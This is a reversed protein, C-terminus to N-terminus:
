EEILPKLRALRAPRRLKALAKAEIQRIRERTLRFVQGVEELTRGENEGVGFRMRLIKEERPTLQTLIRRTHEAVSASVAVDLASVHHADEVFDALTADGDDGVPAELSVPEHVLRWLIRVKDETIGLREAVEASTPERRLSQRLARMTRALNALSENMHVPVRITRAKDAIARTISQRIWWTAYTSLKFGRRHDFREVGKMLGINGEQILDLFQLGRNAYKKAISVVLRLNAQIMSSRAMEVAREGERITDCTRRQEDASIGAAAQVRSIRRRAMAISANMRALDDVTLGLKRAVYQARAPSKATERELQRLQAAGMGARSECDAIEKEAAELQASRQKVQAVISRIVNGHLRLEVLAVVLKARGRETRSRSARDLHAIQRIVRTSEEQEDIEGNSEDLEVVERVRVEGRRLKRGVEVLEALSAADRLVATLIRLGGEEIQKALAVEQERTLLPVAAIQRLYSRVPDASSSPPASEADDEDIM